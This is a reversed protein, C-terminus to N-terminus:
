AFTTPRQTAYLCSGMRMSVSSLTSYSQQDLNVSLRAEVKNEQPPTPCIDAM